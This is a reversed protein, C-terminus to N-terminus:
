QISLRELYSQLSHKVRIIFVSIFISWKQYVLAHHFDYLLLYPDKKKKENEISIELLLDKM